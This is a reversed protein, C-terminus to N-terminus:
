GQQVFREKLASKWAKRDLSKANPFILNEDDLIDIVHVRLLVVRKVLLEFRPTLVMRKTKHVFDNKVQWMGANRNIGEKM